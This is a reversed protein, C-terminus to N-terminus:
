WERNTKRLWHVEQIKIKKKYSKKKRLWHVEQIKIKEYMGYM